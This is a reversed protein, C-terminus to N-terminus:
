YKKASPAAFKYQSNFIDHPIEKSGEKYLIEITRATPPFPFSELLSFAKYDQCYRLYGFLMTNYLRERLNLDQIKDRFKFFVREAENLHGCVVYAYIISYANATGGTKDMILKELNKIENLKKSEGMTILLPRYCAVPVEYGDKLLEIYYHYVKDLQEKAFYYGFLLTYISVSPKVKEKRMHSFLFSILDNRDHECAAVMLISYTSTMRKIGMEPMEHFFRLALDFNGSKCHHSLIPAFVDANLYKSDKLSLTLEHAKEMMGANVYAYVLTTYHRGNPHSVTKFLEEVKEVNKCRAYISMVTNALHDNLPTGALNNEYISISEEVAGREEYFKLLVAFISSAALHNYKTKMVKLHELIHEETVRRNGLAFESFEKFTKHTTDPQEESSSAEKVFRIVDNLANRNVKFSTKKHSPLSDYISQKLPEVAKEVEEILFDDVFIGVPQEQQPTTTETENNTASSKLSESLEDTSNSSTTTTTTERMMHTSAKHHYHAMMTRHQSGVVVQEYEPHTKVTNLFGSYFINKIMLTPSIITASSLSSSQALHQLMAKKNLAMWSQAKMM